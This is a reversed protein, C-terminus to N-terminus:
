PPPPPVVRVVNSTPRTGGGWPKQRRRSGGREPAAACMKRLGSWGTRFRAAKSMDPTDAREKRRWHGGHKVETPAEVAQGKKLKRAKDGAHEHRRLAAPPVEQKAQTKSTCNWPRGCGLRAHDRRRPVPGQEDQQYNGTALGSVPLTSPARSASRRTKPPARSRRVTDISSPRMTLM